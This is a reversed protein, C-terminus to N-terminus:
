CMSNKGWRGAGNEEKHFDGCKPANEHGALWTTERQHQPTAAVGVEAVEGGLSTTRALGSSETDQCKGHLRARAKKINLAPFITYPFSSFILKMEQDPFLAEPITNASPIEFVLFYNEFLSSLVFM